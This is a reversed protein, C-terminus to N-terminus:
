IQIAQSRWCLSIPDYIVMIGEDAQLTKTGGCLFRNGVTSAASNSLVSIQSTGVNCIFIAQSTIPSPAQLGTLNVSSSATIRIFNCTALGTPNYNNTNVTITPPTITGSFSISSSFSINAM